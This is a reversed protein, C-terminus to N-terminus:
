NISSWSYLFISGPIKILMQYTMKIGKGYFVAKNPQPRTCDKLKTQCSERFNPIFSAVPVFFWNFGQNEFYYIIGTLWSVEGLTMWNVDFVMLCMM